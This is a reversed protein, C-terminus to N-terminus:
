NNTVKEQLIIKVNMRQSENETYKTLETAEMITKFQIDFGTIVFLCFGWIDKQLICKLM